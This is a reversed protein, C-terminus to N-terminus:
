VSDLREDLCTRVRDCIGNDFDVEIKLDSRDSGKCNETDEARNKYWQKNTHRNRYRELGNIFQLVSTSIISPEDNRFCALCGCLFLWSLTVDM